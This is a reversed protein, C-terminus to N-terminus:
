NKWGLTDKRGDNDVDIFIANKFWLTDPNKKQTLDITEAPYEPYDSFLVNM